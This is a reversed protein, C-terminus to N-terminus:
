IFNFFSSVFSSLEDQNRVCPEMRFQFALLSTIESVVVLACGLVVYKNVVRRDGTIAIAYLINSVTKLIHTVLVSGCQTPLTALHFPIIINLGLGVAYKLSRKEEFKKFLLFCAAFVIAYLAVDNRSHLIFPVVSLHCLAFMSNSFTRKQNETSSAKFVLEWAINIASGLLPWNVQGQTVGVYFYSLYVFCWLYGGVDKFLVILHSDLEFTNFPINALLFISFAINFYQIKSFLFNANVM